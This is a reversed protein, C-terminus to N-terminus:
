HLIGGLTPGIIGSVSEVAEIVGFLGGIDDKNAIRSATASISTNLVGLSLIVSGTGIFLWPLTASMSAISRGLALTAVCLITLLCSRSPTSSSSSGNSSCVQVLPKAVLAQSLGYMM